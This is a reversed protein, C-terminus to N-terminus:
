AAATQLGSSEKLGAIYYCIIRETREFAPCTGRYFLLAYVREGTWRNVELSVLRALQEIVAYECPYHELTWKLDSYRPTKGIALLREYTMRVAKELFNLTVSDDSGTKGAM